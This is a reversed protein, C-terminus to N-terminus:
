HALVACKFDLKHNNAKYQQPTLKFSKKFAEIFSSCSQYGVQHAVNDISIDQELIRLASILRLRQRWQPFSLNVEKKFLRSLTRESAGVNESWDNLTLNNSPNSILTDVIQVLRRDSPMPIEFEIARQTWVQDYLVDVLRSIVQSKDGEDDTQQKLHLILERFFNSVEMVQCELPSQRNNVPNIYIGVFTTDHIMHSEHETNAPVFLARHHPIIFQYGGSLTKLMGQIPYIIQHWTHQHVMDHEGKKMEKVYFLIPRQSNEKILQNATSVTQRSIV